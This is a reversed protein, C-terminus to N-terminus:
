LGSRWKDRQYRKASRVAELWSQYLPAQGVRVDQTTVERARRTDGQAAMESREVPRGETLRLAAGVVLLKQRAAELGTQTEVDDALDDDSAYALNTFPGKYIVRVERGPEVWDYIFLAEGSAFDSTNMSQKITWASRPITVWNDTGDASEYQVHQIGRTDTVGTLDYGVDSASGTLALATFRYIGWGPLDDLVENYARVIDWTSYQPDFYALLNDAHAITPSGNFGRHLDTAQKTSSNSAFVLMDELGISVRTGSAPANYDFTASTASNTLSGNLRDITDRRGPSLRQRTQEVLASVSAM